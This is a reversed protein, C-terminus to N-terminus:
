PTPAAKTGAISGTLPEGSSRSIFCFYDHEGADWQTVSVPYSGQVQADSYQGAASLDLVGPATCLLSIQAQLAAVGPFSSVPVQGANTSPPASSPAASPPLTAPFTGRFVMQAPHAVACDVVTFREAWPTRFPDLCEGGRLENWGHVGPAAPGQTAVTPTARPTASPTRSASAETSAAGTLTPLRTGMFFLAVLALIAALGGLSIIMVKQTRSVRPPAGTVRPPPGAVRAGRSASRRPVPLPVPVLNEEYERFRSHAFLDDVASTPEASPVAMAPLEGAAAPAVVPSPATDLQHDIPQTADPQPGRGARPAGSEAVGPETPELEPQGGESRARPGRFFPRGNGPGDATM